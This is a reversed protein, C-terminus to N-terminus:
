PWLPCSEATKSEKASLERCDQVLGDALKFWAAPLIGNDTIETRDRAASIGQTESQEGRQVAVLGSPANARVRKM